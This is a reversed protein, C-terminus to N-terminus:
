LRNRMLLDDLEDGVVKAMEGSSEFEDISKELVKKGPVFGVVQGIGKGPIVGRGSPKPPNMVQLHGDEILHAHPSTNLVRVVLEGQRGEFVKGRKWKKHYNGTKKKVLQRSKKRAKQTAKTGAKNLIKKMTKPTGQATQLLREQLETLGQVRM